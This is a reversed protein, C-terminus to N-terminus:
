RMLVSITHSPKSPFSLCKVCDTKDTIERCVSNGVMCSDLTEISQYSFFNRGTLQDIFEDIYGDMWGDMYENM